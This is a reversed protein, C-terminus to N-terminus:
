CGKGVCAKYAVICSDGGVFVEEEEEEDDDM